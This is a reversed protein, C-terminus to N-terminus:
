KFSAQLRVALAQLQTITAPNLSCPSGVVAPTTTLSSLITILENLLSGLTESGSLELPSTSKISTQASELSLSTNGNITVENAELLANNTNIKLKEKSNIDTTKTELDLKENGFNIVDNKPSKIALVDGNGNLAKSKLILPMFVYERANEIFYNEKEILYNYITINTPLLLGLDGKQLFPEVYGNQIIPINSLELLKTDNSLIEVKVVFNDFEKVRCLKCILANSNQKVINEIFQKFYQYENVIKAM